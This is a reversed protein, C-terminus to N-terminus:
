TTPSAKKFKVYSGGFFPLDIETHSHIIAYWTIPIGRDDQENFDAQDHLKHLEHVCKFSM